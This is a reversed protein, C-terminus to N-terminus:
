EPTKYTNLASWSTCKPRFVEPLDVVTLNDGTDDWGDVGSGRRVSLLERSGREWWNELSWGWSSVYGQRWLVTQGVKVETTVWDLQESDSTFSSDHAECDEPIGHSDSSLWPTEWYKVFWQLLAWTGDHPDQPMWLVLVLPEITSFEDCNLGLSPLWIMQKQFPYIM